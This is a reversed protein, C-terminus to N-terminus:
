EDYGPPADEAEAAAARTPPAEYRTAKGSPLVGSGSALTLSRTPTRAPAPAPAPAPSASSGAASSPPVSGSSGGTQGASAYALGASGSSGGASSGPAHSPAVGAYADSATYTSPPAAGSPGTWATGSSPGARANSHGSTGAGSWADGGGGTAWAGLGAAGATTNSVVSGPGHGASPVGSWASGAGGGGGSFPTVEGELPPVQAMPGEREAEERKRRHRRLMFFAATLLLLLVVVVAVVSAAIAATNTKKAPAPTTSTSTSSTSTSSGTGSASASTAPNPTVLWYDAWVTHGNEATVVLTHTGAKLDGSSYYLNNTTVSAPQQGPVFVVSPGGDISFSAQLVNGASGNNIGGYHSISTGEFQLSLSDGVATTGQSTHMFDPDSGFQQWPPKYQVRADRDDIFYAPVAASTTNWMIYDLFIVGSAQAATQTIVLTHSGDGLPPSAWLVEHHVDAALDAPPTYTGEISNDVLFTLSAQPPQIAAVTGFVTVSSGVFSFSATSGQLASWRTTSQFEEAVGGDNWSGTYHVLADREDVIAVNTTM